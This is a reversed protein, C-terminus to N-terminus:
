RYESFSNVERANRGPNKYTEERGKKTGLVVAHPTSVGSYLVGSVLEFGERMKRKRESKRKFKRTIYMGENLRANSPKRRKKKSLGANEVSESGNRSGRGSSISGEEHEERKEVDHEGSKM